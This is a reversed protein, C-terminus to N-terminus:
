EFGNRHLDSRRSSRLNWRRRCRAAAECLRSNTGCVGGVRRPSYQVRPDIQEEGPLPTQHVALLMVATSGFDDNVIPRIRDNPMEVLDVRARVKDWVNQIAQVPVDETLEVYVTSLGNITTSELRDVEELGDLESEIKDTILEEVKIAPAGPWSTAVVCTRITFQPDERRPMTLFTIAGWITLLSVFTIVVIWYKVSLQGINM